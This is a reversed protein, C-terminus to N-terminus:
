LRHHSSLKKNYMTFQASLTVQFLLISLSFFFEEEDELTPKRKKKPKASNMTAIILQVSMVMTEFLNDRGERVYFRFM